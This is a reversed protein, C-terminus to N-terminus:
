TVLAAGAVIAAAIPLSAAAFWQRITAPVRDPTPIRGTYGRSVMALYAREGREFARIFLTGISTALAKVQWIFRPNYGRSIRAIHMRRAEAAIVDIYRLMFTAIQVIVHPCRLRDLGTLLERMPTTGALLLSALVGLTGKAAINFAGYLGEVSLSMGLWTVREGHGAFPLIVALLIFPLEITARKALWLPPVRALVAVPVLLIAYAAFAWLHERPTAVVIVTYTVMAVIKVESPLRHVPSTRDLYLPHAHGAGM